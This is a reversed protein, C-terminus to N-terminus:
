DPCWQPNYRKAYLRTATSLDIDRVLVEEKGCPVYAICAGDPAILSTASNQFRMATNVSAFYIGNEGARCIMAKEYFARGWEKPRKGKRDSGTFQPQFVIQAGRCAAWRVTEPYRWGEHCIVIGFKIGHLRFVRREGDPVYNRSEGGPTIQNKAQYGLVRGKSSIVYALNLLGEATPWEMGFITAIAHARAMSRVSKLVHEQAERDPPPLSLDAGRLGPLYAEPFCIFQAGHSSGNEMAAEVKELGQSVTRPHALSALAIRVTKASM